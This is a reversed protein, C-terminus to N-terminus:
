GSKMCRAGSIDQVFELYHIVNLEDMSNSRECKTCGFISWSVWLVNILELWSVPLCPVNGTGDVSPCKWGKPCPTCSAQGGISYTGLTCSTEVSRNFHPCYKGAPCVTCYQAGGNSYYGSLLFSTFQYEVVICYLVKEWVLNKLISTYYQCFLLLYSFLIVVTVQIKKPIKRRLPNMKFWVIGDM